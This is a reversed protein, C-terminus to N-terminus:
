DQKEQKEEQKINDLEVIQSKLVVLNFGRIISIVEGNNMFLVTPLASVDYQKILDESNDSNVKLFTINTYELSLESFFPSLKKCPGCWSAYFDIIVKGTKPIEDFTTIELVKDM